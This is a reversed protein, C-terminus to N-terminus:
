TSAEAVKILSRSIRTVYICVFMHVLTRPHVHTQELAFLILSAM